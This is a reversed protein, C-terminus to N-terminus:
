KTFINVPLNTVAIQSTKSYLYLLGFLDYCHSSFFRLLKTPRLVTFLPFVTTKRYSFDQDGCAYETVQTVFPFNYM